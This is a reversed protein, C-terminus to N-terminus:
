NFVLMESIEMELMMNLTNNAMINFIIIESINIKFQVKVLSIAQPSKLM